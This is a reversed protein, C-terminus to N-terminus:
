LGLEYVEVMALELSTVEASLSDNKAAQALIFEDKEYQKFQYEYGSFGTMEDTGPENVERIDTSEWVSFDDITIPEPKVASRVKGYDIM